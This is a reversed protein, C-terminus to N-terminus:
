TETSMEATARALPPSSSSTTDIKEVSVDTAEANDPETTNGETTDSQTM